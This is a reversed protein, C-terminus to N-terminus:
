NDATITSGMGRAAEQEAQEIREATQRLAQSIQQLMDPVKRLRQNCSELETMFSQEAVGEWAGMLQQTRSNLSSIIQQTAEAQQAFDSAVTRMEQYNIRIQGAM